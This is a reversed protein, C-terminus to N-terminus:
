SWIDFVKLEKLAFPILIGGIAVDKILALRDRDIPLLADANPVWRPVRACYTAYAEGYKALMRPEERRVVVNFVLAMWVLTIPVMWILESAFTAGLIVLANGVYLPNRVLAYPGTRALINQARRNYNCHRNAWIRVLIGSTTLAGALMWLVLDNEWEWRTSLFAYALPLAALLNRYRFIFESM